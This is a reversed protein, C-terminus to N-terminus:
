PYTYPPPSLPLSNQGWMSGELAHTKENGKDSMAVEKLYMCKM